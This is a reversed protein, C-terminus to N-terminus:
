QGADDVCIASCARTSSRSSCTSTPGRSRAAAKSCCGGAFVSLARLAQQEASSCTTRGASRRRSRVSVSTSTATEDVSCSLREGLRELIAGTSLARVRRRWSWPLPFGTSPRCVRPHGDRRSSDRQVARARALFLGRRDNQEMPPVTSSANGRLRSPERSSAAIVLQSLARHARRARCQMPSTSATTSSSSHASGPSYRTITDPRRRRPAEPGRLGARRRWRRPRSRATLCARGLLRRVSLRPPRRPACCPCAADQGNRGPGTLTLLRIDESLLLELLRRRARAGTRPLLHGSPPARPARGCRLRPSRAAFHPRAAAALESAASFREDPDKALARAFFPDFRALAPDLSARLPRPSTCSRGASRM